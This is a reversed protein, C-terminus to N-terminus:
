KKVISLSIGESSTGIFTTELGPDNEIAELFDRMSREQAIVNHATIAGGPVVRDRIMELFKVYDPKWADLFIFDFDGEIRPIEEFADKIRLDITDDLGAKKFNEKAELGRLKEYEITIIKGGTERFALGLWLTSYGNSTGIELGRRYGKEIILDYLFRGDAAPVNMGGHVTPLDKLMPLVRQDTMGSFIDPFEVAPDPMRFIDDDIPVGDRVEDIFFKTRNGQSDFYVLHPILIGDVARYDTFYLRGAKTLLGSDRDFVFRIERGGPLMGSLVDVGSGEDDAPVAVELGDFYRDFRLAGLPDIWWVTVGWGSLDERRVGNADRVWGQSGDFGRKVPPDSSLSTYLWRGDSDVTVEFRTEEAATPDKGELRAHKVPETASRCICRRSGIREMSESGGLADIYRGLITAMSAIEGFSAAEHGSVSVTVQPYIGGPGAEEIVAEAGARGARDGLIGDYRRSGATIEFPSGKEESAGTITVVCGKSTSSRSAYITVPPSPDKSLRITQVLDPDEHAGIGPFWAARFSPGPEMDADNATLQFGLERGEAAGIGISGCPFFVEIIYGGGTVRRAQETVVTREGAGAGHDYLKTRLSDYREDAGPALVLQVMNMSGRGGSIFIEICDEQWLRKLEEHEHAVDDSVEVLILLGGRNWGLRFRVDFDDAPLFRGEPDPLLDVRFGRDAWDAADGDIVIGDVPPIDYVPTEALAPAALMVAPVLIMLSRPM